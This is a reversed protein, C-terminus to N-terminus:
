LYSFILAPWQVKCTWSSKILYTSWEAYYCYMFHNNKLISHTPGRPKWRERSQQIWIHCGASILFARVSRERVECYHSNNNRLQCFSGAWVKLSPIQSIEGVQTEKLPPTKALCSNKFGNCSFTRRHVRSCIRLSAAAHSTNFWKILLLQKVLVHVHYVGAPVQTHTNTHTWSYLSPPIHKWRRILNMLVTLRWCILRRVRSTFSPSRHLSSSPSHKIYLLLM